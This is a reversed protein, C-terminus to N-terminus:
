ILLPVLDKWFQVGEKSWDLAMFNQNKIPFVRILKLYGLPQIIKQLNETKLHSALLFNEDIIEWEWPDPALSVYINNYPEKHRNEILKELYISLKKGKLILSFGLYHGWWFLTRMTFMEIKSFNQPYDLSLYPFGKHNEGRAIQNKVLDLGDPLDLSIRTIEQELAKQLTILRQEVKKLITPKTQFVEVHNVLRLEKESWASPKSNDSNDTSM